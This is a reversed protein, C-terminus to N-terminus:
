VKSYFPHSHDLELQVQKVEMIYTTIHITSHHQLSFNWIGKGLVSMKTLWAAVLVKVSQAAM